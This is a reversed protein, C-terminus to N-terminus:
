SAASKGCRAASGRARVGPARAPAVLDSDAPPASTRDSFGLERAASAALACRTPPRRRGPCLRLGRRLGADATPRRASRRRARRARGRSYAGGCSSRGARRLDYATALDVGPLRRRPRATGAPPHASGAWEHLVTPDGTEGPPWSGCRSPARTTASWRSRPPWRRRSSRAAGAGPQLPGARAAGRGGEARGVRAPPPRALAAAAPPSSPARAASPPSSARAEDLEGQASCRRRRPSSRRPAAAARPESRRRLGDAGPVNRVAFLVRPLGPSRCSRRHASATLVLAARVLVGLVQAVLSGRAARLAPDLLATPLHARRGASAVPLLNFVAWVLNRGAAGSPPLVDVLPRRGAGRSGRWSCLSGSCRARLRARRADAARRKYWPIRSPRTPRPTAAWGRRAPHDPPLRVGPLGARAGARPRAGLRLRHVMWIAVLRAPRRGVRGARALRAPGSRRRWPWAILASIRCTAPTSRSRSADRTSLSAHALVKVTPRPRM